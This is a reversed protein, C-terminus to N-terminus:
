LLGWARMSRIHKCGLGDIGEHKFEHSACTCHAGHQDVHVDYTTGDPKRLRFAKTVDSDQVKLRIVRYWTERVLLSLGTTDPPPTPAPHGKPRRVIGVGFHRTTKSATATAM